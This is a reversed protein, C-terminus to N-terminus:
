VPSPIRSGLPEHLITLLQPLFTLVHKTARSMEAIRMEASFELYKPTQYAPESVRSTGLEASFHGEARGPLSARISSRLHTPSFEGSNEGARGPGVSAGVPTLGGQSMEGKEDREREGLAEEEASRWRGRRRRGRGGGGGGAEAEEVGAEAAAEEVLVERGLSM